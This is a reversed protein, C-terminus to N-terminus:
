TVLVKLSCAAAMRFSSSVIATTWPRRSSCDSVRLHTTVRVAMSSINVLNRPLDAQSMSPMPAWGGAPVWHRKVLRVMDYGGLNLWVECIWASTGVGVCRAPMHVM